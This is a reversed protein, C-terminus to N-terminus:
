LLLPLSEFEPIEALYLNGYGSRDSTYLVHAGDPSLRPHVHVQQIHSSSRHECLVRPGDFGEGNWRWLRIVHGGDGVILSFDNSHIHGTEHPFSVEVRDTHDYRIRGFFKRGDPWSGHYGIYVGDAHWYEHGVREQGERPHIMWATRATLDFGWIRNDVKDWPGEHCFTLVHPQTPSTNVHGIWAQEEWVTEAGSGDTAITVIRSLPHAEWTERFGVYGRNYDIRICDSLDEFIGDCVCRGDATCNLMSPVFGEPIEWLTRNELSALDLAIVRRDYWFYVEHRMPNVCTALFDIERPPEVPKLDTLQTIVGTKLDLSFLNTRNDRDSGFLLKQQRDYWGPNTFYLHHSHGKYNTLQRVLVGTLPDKDDKWEPAWIRGKSM